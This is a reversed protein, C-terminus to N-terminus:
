AHIAVDVFNSERVGPPSERLALHATIVGLETKLPVVIRDFDLTSISVDKGKIL